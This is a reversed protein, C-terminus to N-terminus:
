RSEEQATKAEDNRSNASSAGTPPGGLLKQLEMALVKGRANTNVVNGQQDVLICRPIGTVGYKIAMPPQKHQPDPATYFTTRWPVGSEKMYQEVAGREEDLSIGLVDFGKEHYKRYNELVNPVEARCPGCWTAWFDILVVKGRYSDWNLPKGDLYTGTLELKHGPLDLRRAIGELIPLMEIVVPDKSSRFEPLVEKFLRNVPADDGHDGIAEAFGMLLDIKEPSPGGSKILAVMQTVIENRDAATLTPWARLKGALKQQFQMLDFNQRIKVLNEAVKPRDDYKLGALFDATQKSATEDGLEGKIRMSEVKWEIADTLQQDTVGPAALVRDAAAGISNSAKSFYNRMEDQSAFQKQPHSVKEIFYLIEEPSGNPVAFPDNATAAPQKDSVVVDGAPQNGGNPPAASSPAAIAGLMLLTSLVVLSRALLRLVIMAM